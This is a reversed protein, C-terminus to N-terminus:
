WPLKLKKLAQAANAAFAVLRAFFRVYRNRSDVIVVKTHKGPTFRLKRPSRQEDSMVRQLIFKRRRIRRV